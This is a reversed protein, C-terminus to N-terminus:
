LPFPFSPLRSLTPHFLLRLLSFRVGDPPFTGMPRPQMLLSCAWRPLDRLSRPFRSFLPFFVRRARNCSPGRAEFLGENSDEESVQKKYEAPFQCAPQWVKQGVKRPVLPMDGDMRASIFSFLGAKCKM